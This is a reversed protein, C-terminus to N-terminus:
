SAHFVPWADLCADVCASVAASMPGAPLDAGFFYLTRPAAEDVASRLTGDAADVLVNPPPAGGEGGAGGADGGAGSLGGGAGGGGPLGGSGAAPEAPEAGATGAGTSGADGSTGAEGASAKGAGGEPSDDDDDSCAAGTGLAGLALAIWISPRLSMTTRPKSLASRRRCPPLTARSRRHCRRQHPVTPM